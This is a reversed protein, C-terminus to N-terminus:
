MRNTIVHLFITLGDEKMVGMGISFAGGKIGFAKEIAKFDNHPAWSKADSSLYITINKLFRQKEKESVASKITTNIGTPMKLRFYVKQKLILDFKGDAIDVLESDFTLEVPIKDGRDLYVAYESINEINKMQSYHIIQEDKFERFVISQNACGIIISFMVLIAYFRYKM